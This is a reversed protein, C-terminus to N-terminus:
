MAGGYPEEILKKSRTMLLFPRHLDRGRAHISSKRVMLRYYNECSIQEKLRRNGANKTNRAPQNTIRGQSDYDLCDPTTFDSLRADCSRNRGATSSIVLM